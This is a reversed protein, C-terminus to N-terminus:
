VFVLGALAVAETLDVIVFAKIVVKTVAKVTELYVVFAVTKNAPKFFPLSIRDAFAFVVVTALTVHVSIVPGSNIPLIESTSNPADM